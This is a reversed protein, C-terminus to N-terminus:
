HKEIYLDYYEDYTIGLDMVKKAVEIGVYRLHWTEEMYGTIFEDEKTYRVIFGFQSCNENIWKADDPTLRKLEYDKSRIDVALGLQHESHGPRASYTDARDRGNNNVHNNYIVKQTNYSRYGSFPLVEIGNDSAYDILKEYAEAAVRRLQFQSGNSLSVLDEPIYDAPLARYKNVLVLLDDPNEVEIINTYYKNNLGINVQTVAEETTVSNEKKYQNYENIKLVNLNKILYFDELSLYELELLNDINNDSLNALIMNIESASYEKELLTNVVNLFNSKNVFNIETYVDVYKSNFSNNILMEELTKSYKNQDVKDYINLEKMIAIADNNYSSETIFLKKAIFAFGCLLIAILLIKLFNIKIKM